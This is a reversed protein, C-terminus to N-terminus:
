PLVGEAIQVRLRAAGLQTAAKDRALAADYALADARVVEILPMEGLRWAREVQGRRQQLESAARAAMGRGREAGALMAEAERIQAIIRRRAQVLQVSAQTVAQAAAARRPANRAETAFPLRFVVGVRTDWRTGPQKENIGQVGLEPDDRNQIRILRAKAEAAALARQAALIGPHAAIADAVPMAAPAPADLRPLADQGVVLALAARASALRADAASVAVSAASADADAALADSQSSEGVRYRNALSAALARSTALRRSAVDRENLALTAQTALDLVEAALGLHASDAEAAVAAADAKATRQTATGEGPLWLPTSLEIQTTKYDLNSGLVQDNIYSTTLNPANPFLASGAEYRAAATDERAAYNARQPLHAWAMAVLDHFSQVPVPARHPSASGAGAALLILVPAALAIQSNM